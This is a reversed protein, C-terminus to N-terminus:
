RIAALAEAKTRFFKGKGAANITWPWATYARNRGANRGSETLSVAHLLLRPLGHAQEAISVAQGCPGRFVPSKSAYASNPALLSALWCVTCLPALFRGM